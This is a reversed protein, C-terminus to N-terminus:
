NKLLFSLSNSFALAINSLSARLWRRRILNSSALSYKSRRFSKSKGLKFRKFCSELEVFMSPLGNM